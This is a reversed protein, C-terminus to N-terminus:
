GNTVKQFITLNFCGLYRRFKLFSGKTTDIGQPRVSLLIASVTISDGMGAVVKVDMPTLKHVPFCIPVSKGTSM